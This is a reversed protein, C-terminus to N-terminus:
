GNRRVWRAYRAVDEAPPVADPDGYATHMRWRVYERPPLPLFPPHRWWGRARFNWVVRLLGAATSPSRFARWLLAFSLRTWGMGVLRPLRAQEM